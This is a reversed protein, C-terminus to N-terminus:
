KTLLFKNQQAETLIHGVALILWSIETTNYIEVYEANPLSGVPDTLWLKM